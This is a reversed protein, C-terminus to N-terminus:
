YDKRDTFDQSYRLDFMISNKGISKQVGLGLVLGVDMRNDKSKNTGFDTDWETSSISEISNGGIIIRKGNDYFWVDDGAYKQSLAYGFSVGTTIFPKFSKKGVSYKLLM